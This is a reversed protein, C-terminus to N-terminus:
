GECAGWRIFPTGQAFSDFMQGTTLLQCDVSPLTSQYYGWREGSQPPPTPGGKTYKRFRDVGGPDGWLLAAWEWLCCM